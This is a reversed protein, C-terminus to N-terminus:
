EGNQVPKRRTSVFVLGLAIAAGAWMAAGRIRVADVPKAAPAAPSAVQIDQAKVALEGGQEPDARRFVGMVRVVDGTRKYCGGSRNVEGFLLAPGWVGCVVGDDSVNIWATEGRLMMDGVLEGQIEVIAGDLEKAHEILDLVRVRKASGAEAGCEGGGALAMLALSAIILICIFAARSLPDYSGTHMRSM